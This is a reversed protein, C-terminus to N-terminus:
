YMRTTASVVYRKAAVNKMICRRFIDCYFGIKPQIINAINANTCEWSTMIVPKKKVRIENIVGKGQWWKRLWNVVIKDGWSPPLLNCCDYCILLINEIPVTVSANNTMPPFFRSPLLCIDLWVFALCRLYHFVIGIKLKVMIYM